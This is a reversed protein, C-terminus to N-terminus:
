YFASTGPSELFPSNFRVAQKRAQASLRNGSPPLGPIAKPTGEQGRQAPFPSLYRSSTKMNVYVSPPAWPGFTNRGKM